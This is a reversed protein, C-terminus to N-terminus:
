FMRAEAMMVQQEEGDIEKDIQAVCEEVTDYSFLLEGLIKVDYNEFRYDWTIQYYKYTYSNAGVKQLTDAKMNEEHLRDMEARYESNKRDIEQEREALKEDIAICCAKKTKETILVEYSNGATVEWKRTAPNKCVRYDRYIYAGAKIKTSKQQPQKKTKTM